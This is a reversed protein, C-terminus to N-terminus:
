RTGEEVADRRAMEQEMAKQLREHARGEGDAKALLQLGRSRRRAWQTARMDLWGNFSVPVSCENHACVRV